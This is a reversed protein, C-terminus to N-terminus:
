AESIPIALQMYALREMRLGTHWGGHALLQPAQDFM